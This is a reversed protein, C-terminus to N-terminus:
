HRSDALVYAELCVTWCALLHRSYCALSDAKPAHHGLITRPGEDVGYRACWVLTTAKLSHSTTRNPSESDYGLYMNVLGSAEASDLPIACVRGERIPQLHGWCAQPQPGLWHAAGGGVRAGVTQRWVKCPPSLPCSSARRSRTPAYKHIRTRGEIFRCESESVIYDFEFSEVYDPRVMQLTRLPLCSCEAYYKDHLASDSIM